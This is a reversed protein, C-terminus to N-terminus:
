RQAQAEELREALVELMRVAISPNTELLRVFDDRAIALCRLPTEARVRATREGQSTLLALEGVFQGRGLEIRRGRTDVAARGEEIVFLGSGKMNPQILVQGAPVDVDKAMDAIRTLGDHDLSAFLPIARLREVREAATTM